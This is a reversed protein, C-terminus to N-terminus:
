LDFSLQKGQWVSGCLCARHLSHQVVRVICVFNPNKEFDRGSYTLGKNHLLNPYATAKIIGEM